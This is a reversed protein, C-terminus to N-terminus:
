NRAEVAEREENYVKKVEARTYGPGLAKVDAKYKKNISDMGANFSDVKSKPMYGGMGMSVYKDGEKLPTRNENFQTDSFAWFVGCDTMLSDLKAQREDKIQQITKITNM